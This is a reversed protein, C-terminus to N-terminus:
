TPRSPGRASTSPPPSSSRRPRTRTSCGIRPRSCTAYVADDRGAAADEAQAFHELSGNAIVADFQGDWEPGLHKYNQLKVNLGAATNRKVQEPSVTLGWGKAGRAQVAKLLRGYGCGIDLLRGSAAVGARDLLVETQRAQALEYGRDPDGEYCGDTLDTFGLAPFFHDFVSYCAMVTPATTAYVVRPDTTPRVNTM